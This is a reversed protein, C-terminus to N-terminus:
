RHRELSDLLQKLTEHKPADSPQVPEPFAPSGPSWFEMSDGHDEFVGRDTTIRILKDPHAMSYQGRGAPKTEYRMFGANGAIRGLDEMTVPSEPPEYQTTEAALITDLDLGSDTRTEDMIRAADHLIVDSGDRAEATIMNDLNALIPQLPGVVDEFLNIRERLARYIKAEITGEYYMNVIRISEYQQGIRDIRGIRQEVRMPNWPMDYNIMAGCFQFNLGEAAADTCILIDVSGDLFKAKTEDRSLQAWGGDSRPEEGHRGSYCMVSCTHRLHERLFDMTDTFQTFLMVQRYGKDRLDAIVDTLKNLKTDPPMDRIMDLLKCVTKRDLKKLAREEDEVIDDTDKDDYEDEHLTSTQTKGDLRELHNELTAKLAVLSSTLRKRYITLAFGVAARNTKKYTKWVKSIYKSVDNYIEYEGESMPVFEDDVKRTGLSWDLGNAKIYERLQKRTNRSVLRTVPSCLLLAKKMLDYDGTQPRIGHDGRLMRITKKSRLKHAGLKSQDIKGYMSESAKFMERVFPLDAAELDRVTEYFREFNDWSWNQPVGLLDLLDYIEVPHLQMPTATMLILDETQGKLNRMLKLMQNPTHKKPNNPNTQRAYHAEDLVVIDWETVAIAAAHEDRRAFQSSVIVPGHAEWNDPPKRRNKGKAHTDQWTLNKGNYIPWDLNLKERLEKQWQRTLAAPAMVLIRRRGELWAQRLFLGAQITKGLGVEDAILLRAPRDSHLRRFVQVQHPWPEVPATMLGVMDGNKVTHSKAIFSWVDNHDFKTIAVKKVLRNPLRGKTPAYRFLDQRAAEPVDMIILRANKGAWDRELQDETRKQRLPEGWSTYVSFTESNGAQGNPTENDSGSWAIKDGAGDKVIGIKKHYIQNVAPRGDDGCRVAVKIVMRGTAVMWSLLELGDVTDSDLPNLPMRCLNREVQKRLDEGQRIAEVERDDLTCGVLLRMRGGNSLLGEVGRVNRVLSNADFYGTGRVYEVSETLAPAYFREVTDGDDSTYDPAWEIDRLM